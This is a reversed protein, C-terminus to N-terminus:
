TYILGMNKSCFDHKERTVAKTLSDAVNKTTTIYEIKIVNLEVKERIFHYKIDIHKTRHRFGSSNALLQASQNDCYIIIPLKIDYRLEKLLQTTWIVDQVTATLAMYEAEATSLAITKQHTSKWVVAGGSMKLLYGTCSRRKDIESAWDADSYAVLEDGKSYFLKYNITSKLYRFIRKVGKWHSLTYNSNFRSVNNVAYAIDPRTGQSLYLLSGIAEQYPIKLLENADAAETDMEISLKVNSDCPTNMPKCDDMQFRKLIEETYNQQDINIGDKAQDIRIGLCGKAVGIDKMRFKKSLLKKINNLKEENKYFILFDDVYIAIILNLEDGHYICPDMKSCKLGFSKLTQDLKSNWVRGAQKLGYMAKRLKCVRNTGDNFNQPQEIFINEQLDGQLFATIADMQYIKLGKKVAIAILLRISTFRVVPAYTEEYDIGFRQTYGKAVLRAKYRVIKGYNDRKTKFIWKTKIIKEGQPLTVLSWTNNEILSNYEENMANQWNNQDHRKSLDSVNLPDQLHLDEDCKFVYETDNLVALNAFKVIDDGPHYDPDHAVDDVMSIDHETSNSETSNENECDSDDIVIPESTNEERSVVEISEDSSNNNIEFSNNEHSNNNIEQSNDVNVPSNDINIIMQDTDRVSDSIENTNTDEVDNLFIVDRSITIKGKEKDFCRYAKSFSDYGVFVMKESKYDLKRRKEKPIHVMVTSGFLKLNSVDVKKNTWIEEPTANDLNANISRNILYVAMNVAEAWYSKTLGADHLLCRSKEIITRNYREAVGNQEPTYPVTLEHRIGNSKLYSNMKNNVFETGNDSRLTKIKKGTENEVLQKFEVFNEYVESKSKLFCVFTKKSFDDIFTLVYRSGGISTKEMPGMLDTHILQLIENSENNSKKFPLRTQKGMACTVCDMTKPNDFKMGTVAGNKMKILSNLNLHGFKRHWLMANNNINSQALLCEEKDVINKM